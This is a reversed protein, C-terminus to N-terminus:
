YVDSDGMTTFWHRAAWEADFQPGFVRICLNFRSPDPAFGIRRLAAAHESWPPVWTELRAQGAGAALRAAAQALGAVAAVDAGPVIWDVLPALPRDHWETRLVLGGRLAGTARARAELLRYRYSPCEAYRWALYASNREQVLRLDRAMERFVGEIEPGFRGVEAVDVEAAGMGSLYEVWDDQFDRVLAEVPTHVPRYDLQRTGIRFAIPNPFGYVIRDRDPRGHADFWARALTLFLGERKLVRRFEADVCTDVAQAGLMPAGDHLWTGPIATYNGVIRGGSEAVFTHHGLANDRFQWRWHAPTRPAFTTNGEAFVANFLALIGREDGDRYPRVQWSETM